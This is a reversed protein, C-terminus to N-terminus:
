IWVKELPVGRKCLECHGWRCLLQGGTQGSLVAASLRFGRTQPTPQYIIVALGVVTAGHSELLEKLETLKAGTRLIDDVM